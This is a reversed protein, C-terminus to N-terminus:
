CFMDKTSHLLSETSEKDSRHTYGEKAVAGASVANDSVRSTKDNKQVRRTEKSAVIEM